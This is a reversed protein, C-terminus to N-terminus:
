PISLVDASDQFWPDAPNSGHILEAFVRVPQDLSFVSEVTFAVDGSGGAGLADSLRQTVNRESPVKAGGEPKRSLISNIRGRDIGVRLNLANTSSWGTRIRVRQYSGVPKWCDDHKELRQAVKTTQLYDNAVYPVPPCFPSREASVVVPRLVRFCGTLGGLLLVLAM